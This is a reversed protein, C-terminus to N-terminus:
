GGGIRGPRNPLADDQLHQAAWRDAQEALWEFNQFLSPRSVRAQVVVEHLLDWYLLVNYWETQLYIDEDILGHRVYSGVHNYMDCLHLEPHERRDIPVELLGARFSDDKMRSPLDHRVFNVLERVSPDLLMQFASQLGALQNQRRLHRLQVFAATATAAIVIFTGFSSVATLVDPKM